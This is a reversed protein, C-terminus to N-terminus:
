RLLQGDFAVPFCSQYVCQCVHMCSVRLFVFVRWDCQHCHRGSLRHTCILAPNGGFQKVLDLSSDSFISKVFLLQALPPRRRFFSCQSAFQSCQLAIMEFRKHVPTMKSFINFAERRPLVSSPDQPMEGLAALHTACTGHLVTCLLPACEHTLM